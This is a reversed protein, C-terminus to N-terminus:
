SIQYLVKMYQGSDLIEKDLFFCEIKESKRGIPLNILNVVSEVSVYGLAFDDWAILGAIKESDLKNLLFTTSGVGYIVPLRHKIELEEVKKVFETTIVKNLTIVIKENYFPDYLNNWKLTQCSYGEKKLTEEAFNVISAEEFDEEDSTLFIVKRSAEHNKIVNDTILKAISGAEVYVNSVKELSSRDGVAIVPIDKVIDGLEEIIEDKEEKGIIIAKTGLEIEERIMSIKENLRMEPTTILYSLDANFEDAAASIGKKLNNEYEESLNESLIAIPYVEKTKEKIVLDTTAAIYLFFLVFAYGTWFVTPTKLKDFM